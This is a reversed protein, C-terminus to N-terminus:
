RTLNFTGRGGGGSLFASLRKGQLNVRITGSIDYERNYFVGAFGSASVQQLRATQVVRVSATACVASMSFTRAAQKRFTARCRARETAGSPLTIRGSGSWSGQLPATQAAAPLFIADSAAAAALAAAAIFLCASARPTQISMVQREKVAFIFACRAERLLM